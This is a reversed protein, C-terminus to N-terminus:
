FYIGHKRLLEAYERGIGSVYMGGAVSELEDESVEGIKGGRLAEALEDKTLEFGAEKVKKLLEEGDVANILERIFVPDSELKKKFECIGAM